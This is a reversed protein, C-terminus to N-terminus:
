CSKESMSLPCFIRQMAICQQCAFTKKQEHTRIHSELTGKETFSKNCQNYGPRRPQSIGSIFILFPVPVVATTGSYTELFHDLRRYLSESASCAIIKWRPFPAAIGTVPTIQWFFSVCFFRANPLQSTNAVIWKKSFGTTIYIPFSNKERSRLSLDSLFHSKPFISSNEEIAIKM